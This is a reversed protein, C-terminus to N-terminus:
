SQWLELQKKARESEPLLAELAEVPVNALERPELKHLGGGYVRGEDLLSAPNITRLEEWVRRLLAANTTLGRQLRPRPYLMLYVNAATARSHNLLIRFPAQRNERARGMYTCLFPSPPRSEQAYWPSRHRCLYREHVGRAKGEELYAWLSPYDRHIERESLQCHLLYLRRPLLPIGHEDACIEDTDLYRPSPLIPCFLDMPLCRQRIAHENLIFFSNDGTAVGRKILFLEGLTIQYSRQRPRSVPFRSWKPEEGLIDSSIRELKAPAHLSGGFSFEVEYSAPPTNKQFWVIASSVLADDFQVDIPDFRHIRLLTVKRLLYRKLTWGYNVDMFESPVLWGAIGGQQMWGHSLAIFYCYLGALGSFREGCLSMARGHLRQKDERTLHHHRVYPPNCIVLNFRQSENVPPEIRTFDDIHLVLPSDSWLEAAPQGYHPDLEFGEVKSIRGAPYCRLLASYFAGTGFAPELLKVKADIPLLRKSFEIIETALTAPTAFQGMRNREVQTKMGDLTEQLALRKDEPVVGSSM